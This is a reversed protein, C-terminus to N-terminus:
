TTATSDLDCFYPLRLPTLTLLYYPLKTHYAPYLTSKTLHTAVFDVCTQPSCKEGEDNANLGSSLNHSLTWKLVFYASEPGLMLLSVTGFIIHRGYKIRKCKRRPITVIQENGRWLTNILTLIYESWIRFLCRHEVCYRKGVDINLM